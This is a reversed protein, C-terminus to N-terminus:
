QGQVLENVVREMHMSRSGKILVTVGEELEEKLIESLVQADSFHYGSSGFAQVANVSLEGLGYLREVGAARAIEGAQTHFLPSDSGLEAMDGLVLWCRGRQRCLVDLAAALSTPNANYSDDLIRAGSASSRVCLRGPVPQMSELGEVIDGLAMGNVLCLASVGLANQVNHRGPLPLHVSARGQPTEIVMRSGACDTVYRGSVDAGVSLGFTLRQCHSALATWMACYPDDHNIVAAGNAPLAEFLEGKARAVGEVSGFGELHAPACQTIIGFRPQAINALAAIEGARNAGMELVAHTHEGGLGFLTQPLGIDNNLNGQTVLVTEVGRGRKAHVRFCNALMEKVTTKGNSGTVGVVQVDHKNRWHHALRGLALRPDDVVIQPIQTSLARAVVAACAGDSHASAVYEHGDFAPGALAFFLEGSRVTRTDTSCGTAITERANGHVGSGHVGSTPVGSAPLLDGGMATAAEHLRLSLM